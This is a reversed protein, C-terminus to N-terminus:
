SKLGTRDFQIAKKSNVVEDFTVVEGQRSCAERALLALYHCDLSPQVTEQAYDGKTINDHMTKWNNAIGLNYIGRIKKQMFRDGSFSNKGKIFVEGSYDASLAGLTGFLDVHIGIGPVLGKHSFRKARFLVTLGDGFDYEATWIDQVDGPRPDEMLDLFNRACTGRASVPNRGILLSAMDVSHISYEIISEGCLAKWQLWNRLKTENGGHPVKLPFAGCTGEIEGYGLKGLDGAAVRRAAETYQGLTRTQFDVLVCKQKAAAKKAAAGIRAVGQADVAIPKAVWVHLGAEAAAEVQEPHFYPPSTVAVIDIGGAEIMKQCCDLGTFRRNEPVNFDKGRADAQDRFYDAVSTVEFRGDEVAVKGVSRGRGGCGVIGVRLKQATDQGRSVYPVSLAAATLGTAKIFNRRDLANLEM